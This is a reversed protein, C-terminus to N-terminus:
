VRSLLPVKNETQGANALSCTYKWESAVVLTEELQFFVLDIIIQYFEPRHCHHAVLYGMHEPNSVAYKIFTQHIAAVM